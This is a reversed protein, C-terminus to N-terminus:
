DIYAAAQRNTDTERDILTSWPRRDNGFTAFFRAM